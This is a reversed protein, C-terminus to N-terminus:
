DALPIRVEVASGRGPKSSVDLLGGLAETREKMSRLGVGAAPGCEGRDGHWGGEGGHPDFGAGDDEVRGRLEADDVDVSVAIRRCGSHAVANRVAERMVLFAQEEAPSPVASEDGAVSLTAEV